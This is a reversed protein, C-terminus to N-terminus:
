LATVCPSTFLTLEQPKQTVEFGRKGLPDDQSQANCDRGKSNVGVDNYKSLFIYLWRYAHPIRILIPCLDPVGYANTWNECRFRCRCRIM